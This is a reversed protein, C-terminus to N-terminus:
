AQDALREKAVDELAKDELFSAVLVTLGLLPTFTLMVIGGGFEGTEM